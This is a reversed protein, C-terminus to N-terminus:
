RSAPPAVAPNRRGARALESGRLPAAMEESLGANIWGIALKM